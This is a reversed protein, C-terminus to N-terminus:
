VSAARTTVPSNDTHGTYRAGAFRSEWGPRPCVGRLRRARSDAQQPCPGPGRGGRDRSPGCVPALPDRRVPSDRSHSGGRVVRGRTRARPRQGVTARRDETDRRPGDQSEGTARRDAGCRRATDVVPGAAADVRRVTAPGFRRRRRARRSCVVRLSRVRGCGGTRESPPPQGARGRHRGM